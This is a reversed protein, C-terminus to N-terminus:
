KTLRAGVVATLPLGRRDFATAYETDLLNEVRVYAEASRALQGRLTLGLLFYPDITERSGSFRESFVDQKGVLRGRVTASLRGSLDGEFVINGTWNPLGLLASGVPYLTAPLGTNDALESDLWTANILMRWRLAWSKELEMEVGLVRSRGLNRNQSVGSQNVPVLRILDDYTQRFFTTRVALGLAPATGIVGTEWSVSTEPRLDPNPVTFPNVLLQQQLNPAKFARGVAARIKLVDPVVSWVIAARPLVKSSLGEFKEFRVGALFSVARGLRGQLETFGAVNNRDFDSQSDGFDGSQDIALDEREAKGGYVVALEAANDLAQVSGIYEVSTRHLLSTLAFDFDFVFFPYATPDIGDRQDEYSFDDRLVRLALQHEWTSTPRFRAVASALLRTRGDRQNPDLPARTAGPDRVPLNSSIDMYRITGVLHWAPTADADMRASADWTTLDHPQAYVGSYHTLGGGASYRIRESGGDVTIESRGQGGRDLSTGGEAVVTLHPSGQRGRRTFFQVAGAMASSGYMVSQPGRTVEVRDVNTLTLGQLDAFGGTLNIPVGDFMVQTFPEDGGRLRLVTPGAIGAGEEIAVSPFRALASAATPTPERRLAAGGLVTAAFGFEDRLVPVRTGTVIVPPLRRAGATDSQQPPTSDRNAPEQAVLTLSPLSGAVALWLFSRVLIPHM